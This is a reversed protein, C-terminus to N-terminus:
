RGEAREKLTNKQSHSHLNLSVLIIIQILIAFFGLSTFAAYVIKASLTPTLHYTQNFNWVYQWFFNTLLMSFIFLAKAVKSLAHFNDILFAGILVAPALNSLSNKGALILIVGLWLLSLAERNNKKSKVTVIALFLLSLATIAMIIPQYTSQSILYTHNPQLLLRSLFGNISQNTYYADLANNLSPLVRFFYVFLLNFGGFIGTVASLVIGWFACFVLLKSRKEVLEKLLFFIPYVKILIPIALYLGSWFQRHRLKFYLYLSFLLIINAQGHNASDIAPIFTALFVSLFILKWFSTSKFERIILGCLIVYLLMSFGAFIRAAVLPSFQLLPVLLFAILPPYSYGTGLLFDLHFKEKAASFAGHLDYPNEHHWFLYSGLYYSPFDNFFHKKDDFFGNQLPHLNRLLFLIIFVLYILKKM